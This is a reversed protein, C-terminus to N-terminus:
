SIAFWEAADIIDYKFNVFQTTDGSVADGRVAAAVEMAELGVYTYVYIYSYIYINIYVYIPM